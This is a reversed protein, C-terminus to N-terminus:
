LQDLKAFTMQDSPIGLGNLTLTHKALEADGYYSVTWKVVDKNISNALEKFYPLDVASMSHGLVYVEEISKLSDFFSRNAQIIDKTPKYTSKFYEDIIRDGEQIRVDQGELQEQSMNASRDVCQWGHGLILTSQQDKASNHIHLVNQDPVGYTKQLTRTYNFSLYIAGTDICTLAQRNSGSAAPIPLQLIWETFRAKLTGSVATVVNSVEFQYDHHYADSWDDAGYSVLFNEANEALMDADFDALAQEFDAWLGEYDFYEELTECLEGDVKELFIRFDSYRSPINHCIDFGNGVIILKKAGSQM